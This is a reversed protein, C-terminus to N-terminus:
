GNRAEMEDLKELVTHRTDRGVYQEIIGKAESIWAAKDAKRQAEYYVKMAVILESLDFQAHTDLKELIRTMCNEEYGRNAPCAPCESGSGKCWEAAEIMKEIQNADMM